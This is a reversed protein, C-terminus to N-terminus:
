FTLKGHTHIPLWWRRPFRGSLLLIIAELVFSFFLLAGWMVCICGFPSVDVPKMAAIIAVIGSNACVNSHSVISWRIPVCDRHFWRTVLDVMGVTDCVIPGDTHVEFDIKAGTESIHRTASQVTCVAFIGRVFQYITRERKSIIETSSLHLSIPVPPFPRGTRLDVVHVHDYGDDYRWPVPLQLHTVSLVLNSRM